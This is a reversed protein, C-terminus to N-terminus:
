LAVEVRMAEVIPCGTVHQARNAADEASLAKLQVFPLRGSETVELEGTIRDKPAYTCRYSRHPTIQM